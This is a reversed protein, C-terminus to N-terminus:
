YSPQYGGLPCTKTPNRFNGVTAIVKAPLQGDLKEQNLNNKRQDINEHSHTISKTSSKVTM